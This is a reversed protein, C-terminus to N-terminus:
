RKIEQVQLYVQGAQITSGAMNGVVLYYTTEQGQVYGTDVITGSFVQNNLLQQANSPAPSVQSVNAYSGFYTLRTLSLDEAPAVDYAVKPTTSGSAINLIIGSGGINFTDYVPSYDVTVLDRGVINGYPANNTYVLNGTDIQTWDGAVQINGTNILINGNDAVAVWKGNGYRIANLNDVIPTAVQTWNEGDNISVQLMAYQGVAVWKSTGSQTTDDGAIGYLASLVPNSINGGIYTSKGSWTGSSGVSRSSKLVTGTQGVIISTFVGAAPQNSYTAYLTKLTGSTEAQGDTDGAQPNYWILGNTGVALMEPYSNSYGNGGTYPMYEIASYNYLKSIGSYTFNTNLGIPSGSGVNGSRSGASVNGYPSINQPYGVQITTIDALNNGTNVNVAGTLTSSGAAAAFTAWTNGGDSSYLDYAGYGYGHITQSRGSGTPGNVYSHRITNFGRDFVSSAGSKWVEVLNYASNTATYFKVSFGVEIRSGEVYETNASSTPDTSPIITVGGAPVICRTNDPWTKPLTPWNYFPLNQIVPDSITSKAQTM